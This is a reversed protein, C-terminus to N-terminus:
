SIIKVTEVKEAVAGRVAFHLEARHDVGIMPRDSMGITSFTGIDVSSDPSWIMVDIFSPFHEEGSKQRGDGFRISHDPEGFHDVHEFYVSRVLGSPEIDKQHTM